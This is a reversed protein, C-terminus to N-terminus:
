PTTTTPPPTAAAAETGLQALLTNRQTVLADIQAQIQATQTSTAQQSSSLVASLDTKMKQIGAQCNDTAYCSSNLPMSTGNAGGAPAPPLTPPNLMGLLQNASNPQLSNGFGNIGTGVVAQAKSGMAAVRYTGSAAPDGNAKTYFSGMIGQIDVVQSIVAFGLILMSAPVAYELLANGRSAPRLPQKRQQM